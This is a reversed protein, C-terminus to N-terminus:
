IISMYFIIVTTIGLFLLLAGFIPIRNKPMQSFAIDLEEELNISLDTFFEGLLHISALDFIKPKVKIIEKDSSALRISNYDVNYHIAHNNLIQELIMFLEYDKINFILYEGKPTVFLSKPSYYLLLGIILLVIVTLAKLMLNDFLYMVFYIILLFFYNFVEYPCAITRRIILIFGLLASIIGLILM